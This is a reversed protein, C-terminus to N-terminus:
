SKGARTEPVTKKPAEATEGGQEEKKDPIADLFTKKTM